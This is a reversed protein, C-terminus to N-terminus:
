ICVFRKIVDLRPCADVLRKVLGFYSSPIAEAPWLWIILDKMALEAVRHLEVLQKLQDSFPVPHEPALYQSSSLKETSSGEEVRFFETAGSVSHPLDTFAGPSSRIRTLLRYKMKVNKSQMNFAKGAAIKRAEQIEQLAGHAENWAAEASQCAKTLEAEQASADSELTECKNVADQLEQQIEKVRAKLKKRAAQQQVAKEEVESLANRLAEVETTAKTCIM